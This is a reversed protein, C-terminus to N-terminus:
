RGAGLHGCIERLLWRRAQGQVDGARLLLLHWWHRLSELLHTHWLVEASRRILLTPTAGESRVQMCDLFGDLRTFQIVSRASCRAHVPAHKSQIFDGGVRVDFMLSVGFDTLKCLKRRADRAIM